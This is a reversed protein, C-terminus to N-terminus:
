NKLLNKLNFETKFTQLKIMTLLTEQTIPQNNVNTFFEDGGGENM